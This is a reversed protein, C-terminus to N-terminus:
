TLEALKRGADMAASLAESQGSIDGEEDIGRVLVYLDPVPKMDIADFFYKMTLTPGDFLHEGSTAGVGLFIGFRPPADVPRPFPEKLVYKLAWYCQTRDIVAKAQAPFSMFFMPSAFIVRDAWEIAEYVVDMDDSTSCRGTAYCDNCETCGAVELEGLYLTRIDAGAEAAGKLAASLLTGSNGERRPSGSFGLVNTM